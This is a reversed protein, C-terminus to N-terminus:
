ETETLPKYGCIFCGKEEFQDTVVKHGCKPCTTYYSRQKEKEPLGVREVEFQRSATKRKAKAIELESETGKWGCAYCGKELLETRVMKKGCSPCRAWYTSASEKKKEIEISEDFHDLIKDGIGLTPDLPIGLLNLDGLRSKKKEESM